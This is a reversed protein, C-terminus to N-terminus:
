KKAPAAPPKKGVNPQMKNLEEQKKQFEAIMQKRREAIDEMLKKRAEAFKKTDTPPGAVAENFGALPVRLNVGVGSINATTVIFGASTKLHKLLDEKAEVEIHCGVQSCFLFGMKLTKLKTEDGKALKENKEVKAWLDKPFFTVGIGPPLVVGLPLIVRFIQKEEADVKVQNLGASVIVMGSTADIREALTHCINLEKKLEKGEKDKAALTGKDCLKVWGSKPTSTPVDAKKKQAEARDATLVFSLGLMVTVAIACVGALRAGIGFNFHSKAM